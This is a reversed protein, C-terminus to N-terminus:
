HLLCFSFLTGMLSFVSLKIHDGGGRLYRPTAMGKYLNQGGRCVLVHNRSIEGHECTDPTYQSFMNQKMKM